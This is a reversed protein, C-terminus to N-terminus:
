SRITCDYFITLFLTLKRIINCTDLLVKDMFSPQLMADPNKATYVNQKSGAIANMEFQNVAGGIGLIFIPVNMKRLLEAPTQPSKSNPDIQSGDTIVFLVKPM